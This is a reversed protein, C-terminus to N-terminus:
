RIRQHRHDDQEAAGPLEEQSNQTRETDIAEGQSEYAKYIGSLASEGTVDEAAGIVVEADTIGSTLLANKYTEETIETIDGMSEDVTIDLGHGEFGTLIIQYISSLLMIISLFHLHDREHPIYVHLDGAELAILDIGDVGEPTDFQEPLGDLLVEADFDLFICDDVVLGEFRDNIHDILVAEQRHGTGGPHPLTM